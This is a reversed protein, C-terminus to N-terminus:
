REGGAEGDPAQALHPKDALGNLSSTAMRQGAGGDLVQALHVAREKRGRRRLGGNIHTVCGMDCAAVVEAGSAQLNALKRELMAASVEPHEVSFVGGFGCCEQTHPLEVLEAGQVQALLARPPREVGLERLLHCSAHYTLRGDFRAGLDSVGLGDVLYESFEYTRRALAQARRLWDPEEAFLELYGHRLMAACSGSPVVVAGETAEFAEITHMAMRRAEARLGANFAPQGCCTQGGPFAVQAGARELVRVVAEGVEPYLTDIICTVFLQITETM